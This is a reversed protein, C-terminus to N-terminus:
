NEHFSQYASILNQKSEEFDEQPENGLTGLEQQLRLLCNKYGIRPCLQILTRIYCDSLGNDMIIRGVFAMEQTTIVNEFSNVFFHALFYIIVKLGMFISVLNAESVNSSIDIVDTTNKVRM